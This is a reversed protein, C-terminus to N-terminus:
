VLISMRTPIQNMVPTHGSPTGEVYAAQVRASQLIRTVTAVRGTCPVDHKAANWFPTSNYRGRICARDTPFPRASPHVPVGKQLHVTNPIPSSAKELIGAWHSGGSCAREFFAGVVFGTTRSFAPNGFM